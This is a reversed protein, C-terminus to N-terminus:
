LISGLENEIATEIDHFLNKTETKSQSALNEFTEIFSATLHHPDTDCIFIPEEVLNSSISVTKPVLKRIWTTNTDRFTEEQVCISELDLMALNKTLKQQTTYKIGFSELKDFLTEQFQYVNRPYVNKVQESCTTM